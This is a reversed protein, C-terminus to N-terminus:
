KPSPKQYRLQQRSEHWNSWDFSYNIKVTYQQQVLLHYDVKNEYVFITYTPEFSLNPFVAFKLSNVLQHRFRTDASNDGSSNFFYDSTDQFNYSVTPSMPFNLGINWYAGYRDQPSRVVEVRSSTTVPTPPNNQNFTNLCTSLSVAAELFCTVVPGGPATTVRFAEIANLTRGGEVGGEIYSKRDEFRAGTRGLLLRTRGQLFNLTSPSTSPPISLPVPNLGISTLPNAVQTEFHGAAVWSWMPLQKNEEWWHLYTGGDLAFQNRSQTESRPGSIQSAFSSSYQLGESVFEDSKPHFFTLKSNADWDWSHTHKANVAPNQVGGFKSSLTQESDTHTLASFGVSAKDLSLDWNKEADVRKQIQKSADDQALPSETKSDLGPQGFPKHFRSWAYLKRWNTNGPRRDDPTNTLEDYYHGRLLTAQCGSGGDMPLSRCTSESITIIPESSSAPPQPDGVPPTALDAYGTDGFGIYDSTAVTYIAGPDLQKDNILYNTSPDDGGKNDQQIGLTVLSRGAAAVPLYAAKEAKSFQTSQKLVSQLVSGQVSKVQIYDGKWIIRDLIEQIDPFKRDCQPKGKPSKPARCHESFYEDLGSLYLDRDQLLAIDTHYRERISWLALQQIASKKADDDWPIEDWRENRLVRVKDDSLQQCDTYVRKCVGMWFSNALDGAPDTEQIPVATPDGDLSYTVNSRLDSTIHLQRVQLFRSKQDGPKRTVPFAAAQSHSPPVALFTAPEALTGNLVRNGKMKLGSFGENGHCLYTDDTASPHFQFVQNPTAKADDAASVVVDFRLCKPLHEALEKAEEPPMQALLVRIGQFERSYKEEYQKEFYDQLHVLTRVPDAIALKTTFKGERHAGGSGDRFAQWALNDAGVQEGLQPDVIGFILVPTEGDNRLVWLDPNKYRGLPDNHGDDQWNPFQFFPSYVSFRLCYPKTRLAESDPKSDVTIEPPRICIAYNQGPRLAPPQPLDYVLSVIEGTAERQAAATAHHNLHLLHQNNCFGKHGLIDDPDGAEAECLYVELLKQVTEPWAGKARVRIFQMWPFAFGNDTFDVIELERYPHGAVRPDQPFTIRFPLPPKQSDPIATHDKTWSTKIMLNAGLMQVPWFHANNGKGISAMFRALERLRETGYYFDHKGPVVADYHVYSLFCGVNDTPITATGMRLQALTSPSLKPTDRYWLWEKGNWHYLDKALPHVPVSTDPRINDDASERFFVRAYYNPAFNDGTGVLITDAHDKRYRIFAEADWSPADPSPPEGSPPSCPDSPSRVLAFPQRDPLRYYGTLKGTFLIERDLRPGVSFDATKVEHTVHFLATFHYTGPLIDNPFEWEALAAIKKGTRVVNRNDVWMSSGAVDTAGDRHLSIDWIQDAKADVALDGSMNDATLLFQEKTHSQDPFVRTLEISFTPKAERDQATAITTLLFYASLGILVKCLFASANRPDHM